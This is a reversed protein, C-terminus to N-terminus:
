PRRRRIWGWLLTLMLAITGTKTGSSEGSRVVCGCGDEPEHGLSANDLTAEDAPTNAPDGVNEATDFLPTDSPWEVDNVSTDSGGPNTDSVDGTSTDNESPEEDLVSIDDQEM